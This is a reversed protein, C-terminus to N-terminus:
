AAAEAEAPRLRRMEAKRGDARNEPRGREQIRFMFPVFLRERGFRKPNGRPRARCIRRRPGSEAAPPRRARRTTSTSRSWRVGAGRGRPSRVIGIPPRPGARGTPIGAIRDVHRAGPAEESSARPDSSVTWRSRELIGLGVGPREEDHELIVERNPGRSMGGRDGIMLRSMPSRGPCAGAIATRPEGRAVRCAVPGSPACAVPPAARFRGMPHGTLSVGWAFAGLMYQELFWLSFHLPGGRAPPGRLEM